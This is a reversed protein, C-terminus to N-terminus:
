KRADEKAAQNLMKEVNNLAPLTRRTHATSARFIAEVHEHPLSLFELWNLGTKEYIGHSMYRYLITRLKSYGSWDEKHHQAILALPRQQDKPKRSDAIHDFIGYHQEYIEM